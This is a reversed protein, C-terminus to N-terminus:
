AAGHTDTCPTHRAEWARRERRCTQMALRIHQEVMKQSIGMMSAIEAHSHGDFRHLVFAERCRPPLGQIAALLVQAAQRSMAAVEPEQASPGILTDADIADDLSATGQHLADHRHQDIMLNRATRYLMARPEAIRSGQQQATLVRAYTEQVVDAAADRNRTLRACFNLLEQYYREFVTTASPTCAYFLIIFPTRIIAKHRAPTGTGPRM